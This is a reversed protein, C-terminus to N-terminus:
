VEENVMLDGKHIIKPLDLISITKKQYPITGKLYEESISQVAAPVATVENSRIHTVDYVADVPIGVLLDDSSIVMAKEVKESELLPMNLATRIDVLTLIEGRLNTNGIIHPPCCPIPTIDGIDAFERIVELDIGFYEGNLGVVALPMLGKFDQGVVAERLGQARERLIEKEEPTANPFFQYRKTKTAPPREDELDEANIQIDESFILQKHDLLMIINNGVKAKNSIVRKKKSDTKQGFFTHSAEINEPSITQVDHVTNVILGMLIEDYELDLIIVNNDLTYPKPERGFRLDLDMVPVIKGRLNVVGMIYNPVEEVPTLEPLRFIESVINAQVGYLSEHLSFILYSSTKGSVKSM